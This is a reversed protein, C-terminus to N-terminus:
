RSTSTRVAFAIRSRSSSSGSSRNTAATLREWIADFDRGTQFPRIERLMVLMSQVTPDIRWLYLYWTQDAIWASPEFDPSPLEHEQLAESFHQATPRTAYTLRLWSVGPTLNGTVSAVYRHLLYM